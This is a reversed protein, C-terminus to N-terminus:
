LLGAEHLKVLLALLGSTGTLAGLMLKLVKYADGRQGDNPVFVAVFAASGIIALALVAYCGVIWALVVSLNAM